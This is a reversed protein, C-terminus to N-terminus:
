QKTTRYGVVSYMPCLGTYATVLMMVSVLGLLPSLIEPVMMVPDILSPLMDPIMSTLLITLALAGTGAGIGTRVRADKIGVTKDMCYLIRLLM